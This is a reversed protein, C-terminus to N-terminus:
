GRAPLQRLRDCVASAFRLRQQNTIDLEEATTDDLEWPHKEGSNRTCGDDIVALIVSRLVPLSITVTEPAAGSQTLNRQSAESAGQGHNSGKESPQPSEPADDLWNDLNDRCAGSGSM